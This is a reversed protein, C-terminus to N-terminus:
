SNISSYNNKRYEEENMEEHCKVNPDYIDRGISGGFAFVRAIGIGGIADLRDADQVIKGELSEPIITDTEKFSITDVLMKNYERAIKPLSHADSNTLFTKLPLYPSMTETLGM